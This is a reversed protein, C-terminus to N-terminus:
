PASARTAGGEEGATGLLIIDRDLADRRRRSCDCPSRPQRSCRGQRRDRRPRVPLRRARDASVAAHEVERRRRGGRGHPGHGAGAAQTPSRRACGPSSTPAATAPISFARRSAPSARASVTSTVRSSSRTAPRIRHTSRSSSRSFLSRTASRRSAISLQDRETGVVSAVILVVILLARATLAEHYKSGPGQTRSFGSM